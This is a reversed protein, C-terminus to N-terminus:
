SSLDAQLQRADGPLMEGRFAINGAEDVVILSEDGWLYVRFCSNPFCLGADEIRTDWLSADTRQYGSRIRAITHDRDRLFYEAVSGDSLHGIVTNGIMEELDAQTALRAPSGELHAEETMWRHDQRDAPPTVCDFDSALRAQQAFEKLCDGYVFDFAALWAAGHGMFGPPRDIIFHDVGRESLIERTVYARGGPDFADGEFLILLLRGEFKNLLPILESKNRNFYPNPRGDVRERAGYSAPVAAIIADAGFSRDESGYIATWSGFSQAAVVVRHYGHERLQQLRAAVGAAAREFGALDDRAPILKFADWGSQAFNRVYFPVVADDQPIDSAPNNGPIYVIAGLAETPGKIETGEAPNVAYFAEPNVGPVTIEGDWLVQEDVALIKCEADTEFKRLESQECFAIARSQVNGVCKFDPCYAIGYAKGDTTVAFAKNHIIEQYRAYAHASKTSLEVPGQGHLTCGTLMAPFAVVSLIRLFGPLASIM